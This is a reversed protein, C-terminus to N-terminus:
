GPPTPRPRPGGETRPPTYRPRPGSEYPNGGPPTFRPRPGPGEGRCHRLAENRSGYCEVGRARAQAEPVQLVRGDICVWCNREKPQCSRTAEARSGFCPLGRNRADNEPLQVVRGDICVWCTKGKCNRRAEQESRFTRGGRARCEGETVQAVQGDMCCWVTKAKCHTRAEEESGYCPLRRKKAEAEPIQTVNGDICVWCTKGGGGVCHARAEQESGYCPLQRARADAEPIQTVNGDICVWCLKGGGGGGKGCRAKAEQESGYCPLNRRRAEGETLQFVRGDVCTWCPRNSQCRSLAEQASRYYPIGKQKADAETTQVIKGNVCTWRRVQTPPLSASPTPSKPAACAMAEAKSSFCQAGYVLKCGAEDTLFYEGNGPYPCCWCMNCSALAEAETNFLQGGQAACQQANAPFAHQIPRGMSDTGPACCWTGPPEECAAIADEKTPYYNANVGNHRAVCDAQTTKIYSISGDPATICCWVPYCYNVAADQTDFCQPGQPGSGHQACDEKTTHAVGMGGPMDVCCWCDEPTPTPTPPPNCHAKADQESAYCQGGRRKCDDEPVYVVEHTDRGPMCCWCMKCHAAAEQATPYCQLGKLQADAEPIQVPKNDICVWCLKVVCGHKRAEDPNNYCVGGRHKCDEETTQVLHKGARDAFCCWCPKCEKQHALAERQTAYFQGGNRQCEELTSPFIKGDLCCWGKPTCEKQHAQAEEQSAYCQGGKALCDAWTTQFVKGDVCCWWCPKCNRIADEEKAFWQGGKKRCEVDTMKVVNGNLCCWGDKPGCNKKAEAFSKYCQIGKAQCEAWTTQVVKENICSWYPRCYKIAEELSHYRQGGNAQCEAPPRVYVHGKICGYCWDPPPTPTPCGCNDPCPLPWWPCSPPQSWPCPGHSGSGGHWSYSHSGTDWQWGGGEQKWIWQCCSYCWRGGNVPTPTMLFAHKEGNLTIGEGVIELCDDITKAVTLVKFNSISLDCLLNLDYMQSDVYLFAHESKDSLTSSGVIMGAQNFGQQGTFPTCTSGGLTGLDTVTYSLPAPTPQTSQVQALKPGCNKKAEGFSDYCQIGKAQCEAWTTQIVKEDICSWYPRCYKIAEEPSYYCQVGNAQCEASPRVYVHGTLCGYCWDPPPTPRPCGCNDPCPLPWWPCPPPQSWPCPGHSGSGGHWSYSHSGTDWQWGGGEQKWVWQCCSYCWTGGNVPTPTLLFSHKDGNTTVGEGIINFCDDISKAITLVKFDSTSLDCLLNLDYMQNDVYLFAHESKDSLTSSGVIMGAQNFGQQGSFSTSTSGGLTGLDTVTYSLPGPTPQTSQAQAQNVVIVSVLIAAVKLKM